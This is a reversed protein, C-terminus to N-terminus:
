GQHRLAVYDVSVPGGSAEITLLAYPPSLDVEHPTLTQCPANKDAKWTWRQDGLVAAGEVPRSPETVNPAYPVTPNSAVHLEVLWRGKTPVPVSITARARRDAGTPSVVLVRSGSACGVAPEPVALGGEQFLVPWEAEAEFRLTPSHEPPTWPAVSPKADHSGPDFRYLYTPPRGLADYLMRDRADSRLRAVLIGTDPRAAPDHGLAFGHDTDVFVLGHSIAANVFTDPELM